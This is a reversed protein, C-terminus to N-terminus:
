ILLLIQKATKKKKKVKKVQVNKFLLRSISLFSSVKKKRNFFNYTHAYLYM